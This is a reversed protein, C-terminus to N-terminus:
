AEASSKTNEVVPVNIDVGMSETGQEETVKESEGGCAEVFPALKGDSKTAKSPRVSCPTM